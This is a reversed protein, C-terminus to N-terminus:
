HDVVRKAQQRQTDPQKGSAHPRNSKQKTRTTPTANAAASIWVRHIIVTFRCAIISTALRAARRVITPDTVVAFSIVAVPESLRRGFGTFAAAIGAAQRTNTGVARRSTSVAM